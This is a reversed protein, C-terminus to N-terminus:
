GSTYFNIDMVKNIFTNQLDLKISCPENFAESMQFNLCERGVRFSFLNHGLNPTKLFPTPYKHWLSGVNWLYCIGEFNLILFADCFSVWCSCLRIFVSALLCGIQGTKHAPPPPPPPPYWVDGTSFPYVQVKKRVLSPIEFDINHKTHYWIM